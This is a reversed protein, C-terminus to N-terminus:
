GWTRVWDLFVKAEALQPDTLTLSPFRMTPSQFLGLHYAIAHGWGWHGGAGIAPKRGSMPM